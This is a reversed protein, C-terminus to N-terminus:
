QYLLYTIAKAMRMEPEHFHSGENEEYFVKKYQSLSEMIAITKEKVSSMVANRTDAEKNGLSLYVNEISDSLPHKQLYEEFGPYWLSGSVSAVSVFLSSHICAYLSFLGALSYGAISLSLIEIEKEKLHQMIQPLLIEEIEKLYQDGNGLFPETKKFIADAKWPSLDANWSVDCVAILVFDKETNEMCEQYIASGDSDEAPLFIAQYCGKCPYYLHIKRNHVLLTETTKMLNNYNKKLVCNFKMLLFTLISNSDMYSLRISCGGELRVTLPEFGKM